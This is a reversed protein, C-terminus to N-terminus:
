RITMTAKRQHLRFGIVLWNTRWLVGFRRWGVGDDVCDVGANVFVDALVAVGRGGVLGYTGSRLLM